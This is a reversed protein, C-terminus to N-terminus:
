KRRLLKRLESAFGRAKLVFREEEAHCIREIQERNKRSYAFRKSELLGHTSEHVLIAAHAYALVEKGCRDQRLPRVFCVQGFAFYVGLRRTRGVVILRIFKRIRAFRRLDTKQILELATLIDDLRSQQRPECVLRLGNWLVPKQVFSLLRLLLLNVVQGPTTRLRYFLWTITRVKM